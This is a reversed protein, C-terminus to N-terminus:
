IKKLIRLYKFLESMYGTHNEAVTDIMFHNLRKDVASFGAKFKAKSILTPLLLPPKSIDYYSILLDFPTNIFTAVEEKEFKGGTSIDNRTFWTYDFVEKKKVREKFSLTQIDKENIGNQVLAQVLNDKDNFYSEDVLIGVSTIAGHVSGPKYTLLTKKIIKKLAFDKFAKLFM